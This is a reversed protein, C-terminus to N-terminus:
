CDTGMIGEESVEELAQLAAEDLEADAGGGGGGSGAAGTGPGSLKLRMDDAEAQARQRALRERWVQAPVSPPQLDALLPPQAAKSRLLPGGAASGWWCREM